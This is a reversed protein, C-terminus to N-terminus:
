RKILRRRLQNYKHEYLFSKDVPQAFIGLAKAENNKDVIYWTGGNAIQLSRMCYIDVVNTSTLKRVLFPVPLLYHSLRYSVKCGDIVLEAKFMLACLVIVAILTENYPGVFGNGINVVCSWMLMLTIIAALLRFLQIFPMQLQIRMM